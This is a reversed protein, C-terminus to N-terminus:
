QALQASNSAVLEQIESYNDQGLRPLLIYQRDSSRGDKLYNKNSLVQSDLDFAALDGYNLLAHSIFDLDLNTKTMKLAQKILSPLKPIISPTLLTRKLADLVAEQRQSRGFDGGGTGSHRSRVFKLLTESDIVQDGAAFTLSEYRCTFVKELEFEKLSASFTAVDEETFGCPNNEEGTIPYFEDTFAYPVDVTLGQNNTLLNILKVFGSFDVALYYDVPQGIITAVIAAALKGGGDDGKFEDPRWTYQKASNGISFTSNIKSYLPEDPDTASRAFPFKVWLDRPISLLHVKQARPIIQALIMTDALGGGAHAGGGYGILLLNVSALPDPPAPTASPTAEPLSTVKDASDGGSQGRRDRWYGWTLCSGFSAIFLISILLYLKTKNNM